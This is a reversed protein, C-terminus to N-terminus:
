YITKYQTQLIKQFRPLSRLNDFVPDIKLFPVSLDGPITLLYEIKDMALDNQGTLAYIKALDLEKHYGQWADVNLPKLRIATKISELAHKTDGNCVCAYAMAAHYRDDMPSERIKNQIIAIASDAYQRCKLTNGLLFYAEANILLGPQYEFQDERDAVNKILKDYQRNLFYYGADNLHIIESNSEAYKYAEHLDGKWLLITQIVAGLNEQNKNLTISENFAEFAKQYNRILRYTHGIEIYGSANLPDLLIQKEWGELSEKWRGMRRLIAAKLNYYGPNNLLQQEIEDLLRLEYKRELTYRLEAHALKVEPLSPNIKIARGLDSKALSDFGKWSGKYNYESGRTFYIRSCIKSRALLADIFLSDKGIAKTYMSLAHSYDLEEYYQNGKLFYDYAVPDSTKIQRILEVERPTITVKLKEAIKEAVSSELDYINEINEIEGDYPFSWLQKDSIADILQITLRIHKGFKQGSGEIIYKVDLKKAIEKLPITTNRFQEVSTRSIVVLNGIRCLNDLIAEMTGDIFYKNTTDPSDNRFPLVAISKESAEAPKILKPISFIVISILALGIISGAIIKTRRNVPLSFHLDSEPKLYEHPNHGPRRLASIIEKVSNAVKNIQNRYLTRNINKDEPDGPTLSRNVGPEKYIFEIKRLHAGLVEEIQCVDEPDLEHIQVPLVRNAVNGNPLKVKLGFQDKSAMEVFAKFEHEWAFSKPDCYTRSIIPIFILCKLKEKLSADVDHTELLGDHPNIDFYVSIEEKFTSELEGKLNEVFETVWGDQKNDKQRYSIFIDYEYGPILSAM